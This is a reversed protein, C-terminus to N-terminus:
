KIDSDSLVLFKSLCVLDFANLLQKVMSRCMWCFGSFFGENRGNAIHHRQICVKRCQCREIGVIESPCDFSSTKVTRKGPLEDIM